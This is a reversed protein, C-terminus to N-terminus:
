SRRLKQDQATKQNMGIAISQKQLGARRKAKRIRRPFYWLWFGTFAFTLLALGMILTYALKFQGGDSGVIADLISGDHINEILDSRRVSIQLLEGTAADLQVGYYHDKFIFKVMGKSKRSDIRDLRTSLGASVSDRLYECAKIYLDDLPLWDSLESTTGQRSEPLILGGSNKKWGLLLGTLAMVIFLAFLLAGTIRHLKRM